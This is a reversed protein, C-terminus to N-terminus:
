LPRAVSVTSVILRASSDQLTHRVFLADVHADDTDYLYLGM